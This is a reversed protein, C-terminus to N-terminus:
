RRVSCQGTSLLQNRKSERSWIPRATGGTMTIGAPEKNHSSMICSSMHDIDYGPKHFHLSTTSLTNKIALADKDSTEGVPYFTPKDTVDNRMMLRRRLVTNEKARAELVSNDITQEMSLSVHRLRDVGEKIASYDIEACHDRHESPLVTKYPRDYDMARNQGAPTEDLTRSMNGRQMEKYQRQQRMQMAFDVPQHPHRTPNEPIGNYFEADKASFNLDTAENGTNIEFVDRYKNSHYERQCQRTRLNMAPLPVQGIDLGGQLMIPQGYSDNKINVIKALPEPRSNPRSM